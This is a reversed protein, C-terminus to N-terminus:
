RRALGARAALAAVAASIVINWNALTLGLVRLQVADCRVVKVKALQELLNGGGTAGISGTCATPGQWLKAEVGSHYVALVVSAAFVLAILWFLARVLARSAGSAALAFAVVALPVGAYYAYRQTLCLECPEYGLAQFIWAGAITAFALAAITLASSKAGQPLRNALSSMLAGAGRHHLWRRDDRRPDGPLRRFTARARAAAPRRLRNLVGAVVFFRAGRTLVSLGVFAAFNYGMLGSVITVLKFPIPTLGKILIVWAGWRAYTEKLAAMRDAYGYIHILWQGITDYLLAGIAYGLIGGLVSAITAILAYRWALRPKALSMPALIVDPPIPFFSSEAFAIAALAYPAHASESLAIIRNYLGKLMGVRSSAVKGSAYVRGASFDVM